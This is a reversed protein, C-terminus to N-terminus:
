WMTPIMMMNFNKLTMASKVYKGSCRIMWHEGEVKEYSFNVATGKLTVNSKEDLSWYHNFSNFITSQVTWNSETIKHFAAQERIDKTKLEKNENVYDIFFLDENKIELVIGRLNKDNNYTINMLESRDRGGPLEDALAAPVGVLIGMTFVFQLFKIM